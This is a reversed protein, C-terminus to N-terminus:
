SVMAAQMAVLTRQAVLDADTADQIVAGPMTVLPGNYSGRAGMQAALRDLGSQQMLQMARAPNTLPIVAEPRNGEGLWSLTPRTVIDGDARGPILGGVFGGVKGVTGIVGEVPGKIRDIIGGISNAVAELPGLIAQKVDEWVGTVIDVLGAFDFFGTITDIIGSLLDRAAGIPDTIVAKIGNWVTEAATKIGNWIAESTSKIGNWVTEIVTAITGVIGQLVAWLFEFYYIIKDVLDPIISNGVLTNYLDQFWGVISMVFEGVPRLVNEFLWDWAAVLDEVMDKTAKTITDWNDAIYTALLAILPILLILGGTAGAWMAIFAVGIATIIAPDLKVIMETVWAVFQALLAIVPALTVLTTAFISVMDAIAPTVPLIATLMTGFAEILEPLVPALETVLQSVFEAFVAILSAIASQIAPDAMTERLVKFFPQLGQSLALGLSEKFKSMSGELTDMRREMAGAAGPFDKMGEMLIAVAENGTLLEDLKGADQLARLEPVTDGAEVGAKKLGDALTQWVNFGPDQGLIKGSSSMQGLVRVLRTMTEDSGGSAATVNGLTTIYDEVNDTTVGFGKGVAILQAASNALGPLEFPTNIAFKVMRQLLADAEAESSTLGKFMATARDLAITTEAGFDIADKAYSGLQLGALAGGLKQLGSRFGETAAAVEVVAKGIVRAV